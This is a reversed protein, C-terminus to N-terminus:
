PRKFEHGDVPRGVTGPVPVGPSLRAPPVMPMPTAPIVRPSADPLAPQELPLPPPGDKGLRDLVRLAPDWPLANREAADRTNEDPQYLPTESLIARAELLGMQRLLSAQAVYLDHRTSVLAIEADRLSGHAFLVDFTSRLGARYEEFTGEDLVQASKLQAQQVVLNRQATAVGNWADVVQQVVSRRAGEIRERDAANRDRAQEIRSSTLGGQTLPVTLVAQGTYEQDQNYTHLPVAQGGLRASGRLSLRPHEEAAAAAIRARSTREAAIAQGLDPSLRQALDFAEDLSRPLQPLAPEPALAGPDHGVLAAFSSRDQELQQEAINATAIAADLQTAAQAIDTRTLEGAERRATVEDLTAKIQDISAKRLALTRGDRRIAAYASIVRLFLDGETGRLEERGARIAGRAALADATARGGTYLPQEVTVEASARNENFTSGKLQDAFSRRGQTIRGALTRTFNGTVQLEATPRLEALAQAYDEDTARLDYRRAQLAPSTRYAADLAEALTETPEPEAPTALKPLQWRSSVWTATSGRPVKARPARAELPAAGLACIVLALVGGRM